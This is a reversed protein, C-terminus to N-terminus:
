VSSILSYTIFSERDEVRSTRSIPRQSFRV